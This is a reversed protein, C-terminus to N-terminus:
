VRERCSARGIKGIPCVYCWSRQHIIIALIIGVTTTVTLLIMFFRGIAYPDPWLRVIQVALMLMLFALVGIRVPLSRLAKPIKRGPSIIKMYSDAFSGRPCMWNCWTRGKVSAVSVGIVMCLPIFYGIISYFWGGILLAIFLSGALFQRILRSKKSRELREKRETGGPMGNKDPMTEEM